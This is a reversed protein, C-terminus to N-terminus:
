NWLRGHLIDFVVKRDVGFREGLIRQSVGGAAYLRRIEAADQETLKARGNRQGRPGHGAATRDKINDQQSGIYLHLPNICSPHDCVHNAQEGPLLARGIKVELMVRHLFRIRGQVKIRIYGHKDAPHYRSIRCSGDTVARELYWDAIKEPSLGRPRIRRPRQTTPHTTAM